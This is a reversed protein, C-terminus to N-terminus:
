LYKKLREDKASLELLVQHALADIVKRGEPTLV